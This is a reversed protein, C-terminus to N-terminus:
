TKGKISFNFKYLRRNVSSRKEIFSNEFNEKVYAVTYYKFGQKFDDLTLFFEGDHLSQFGVQKMLQENWNKNDAFSYKGKWSPNESARFVERMKVLSLQPSVNYINKVIYGNGAVLGNWDNFCAATIIYQNQIANRINFMIEQDQQSNTVFEEAPAGLLFRAAEAQTGSSIMEYNVHVKAYAKEVLPIWWGGDSTPKAFATQHSYIPFLDDVTIDEPRGKVYAKVTFIGEDTYKKQEFLAPVLNKEAMAALMTLLYNDGISGQEIGKLNIKGTKEFESGFLSPHPLPKKTNSLMQYLEM